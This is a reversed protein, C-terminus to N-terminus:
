VGHNEGIVYKGLGFSTGKGVDHLLAGLVVTQYERRNKDDM